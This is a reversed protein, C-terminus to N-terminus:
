SLSNAPENVLYSGGVEVFAARRMVVANDGSLLINIWIIQGVAIWFAPSMMDSLLYGVERERSTEGRDARGRVTM